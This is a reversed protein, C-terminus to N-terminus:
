RSENVLAASSRTALATQQGVVGFEKELPSFFSPM